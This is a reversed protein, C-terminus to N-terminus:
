SKFLLDIRMRDYELIWDNFDHYLNRLTEKNKAIIDLGRDDYMNFIINKTTNIFFVEGEFRPNRDGFDQNAIAQLINQTNVLKVKTSLIARKLTTGFWEPDYPNKLKKYRICSYDLEEIQRLVYNCKKIKQRDWSTRQYVLFLKDDKSMIANYLKLARSNVTSFYDENYISFTEDQFQYM